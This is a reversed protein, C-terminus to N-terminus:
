GYIIDGKSVLNMINSSNNNCNLIVLDFKGDTIDDVKCFLDLLANDDNAETQNTMQIAVELYDSEKCEETISKGFVIMKNYRDPNEVVYKKIADVQAQKIPNVM